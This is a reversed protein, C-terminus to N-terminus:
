RAGARRGLLDLERDRADLKDREHRTLQMDRLLGEENGFADIETDVADRRAEQEAVREDLVALEQLIEDNRTDGDILHRACRAQWSEKAAALAERAAARQLIGTEVTAM